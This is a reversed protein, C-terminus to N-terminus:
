YPFLYLSRIGVLEGGDDTAYLPLYRRQIMHEGFYSVVRDVRRTGGIQRLQSAVFSGLGTLMACVKTVQRLQPFYIGYPWLLVPFLHFILLKTPLIVLPLM